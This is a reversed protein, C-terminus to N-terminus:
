QDLGDMNFDLTDTIITALGDVHEEAWEVTALHDGDDYEV